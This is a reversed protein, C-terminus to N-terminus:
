WRCGLPAKAYIKNQLERIENELKAAMEGTTKPNRLVEFYEFKKDNLEKRLTRTEDYFKQCETSYGYYGGMMGPGMGYGGMMGPGMGYGGMMGPGMGYGGMQGQQGGMTGAGSTEQEAYAPITFVLFIVLVTMLKKMKSEKVPNSDSVTRRERGYSGTYVEKCRGVIVGEACSGKV